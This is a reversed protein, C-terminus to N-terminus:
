RFTLESGMVGKEARAESSFVTHLGRRQPLVTRPLTTDRGTVGAPVLVSLADALAFIGQVLSESCLRLMGAGARPSAWRRRRRRRRSRVAAGPPFSRLRRATGNAAANSRPSAAEQTRAPAPAPRPHRVRARKRRAHQAYRAQSACARVSGRVARWSALYGCPM